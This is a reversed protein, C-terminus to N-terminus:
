GPPYVLYPIEVYAIYELVVVQNFIHSHEFVDSDREPHYADFVLLLDLFLDAVHQFLDPHVSVPVTIGVHKGATLALSDPDGSGYYFIRSNDYSIFRRSIEVALVREFYHVYYFRYRLFLEHYEHCVLLRQSLEIRGPYYPQQVPPHNGVLFVQVGFTEVITYFVLYIQFIYLIM